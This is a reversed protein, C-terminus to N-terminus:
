RPQPNEHNEEARGPIHQFLVKILGHVIGEM